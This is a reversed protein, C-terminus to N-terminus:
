CSRSPLVPIDLPGYSWGPFASAPWSTEQGITQFSGDIVFVLLVIGGEDLTHGDWFWYYGDQTPFQDQWQLVPAVPHPDIFEIRNPIDVSPMPRDSLAVIRGVIYDSM